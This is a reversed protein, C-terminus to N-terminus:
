SKREKITLKRGHIFIERTLRDASDLSGSDVDEIQALFRTELELAQRRHEPAIEVTLRDDFGKQCALPGATALLTALAILLLLRRRNM